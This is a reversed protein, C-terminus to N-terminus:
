LATLVCSQKLTMPSSPHTLPIVVTFFQYKSSFMRSMGGEIWGQQKSSDRLVDWKGYNDKQKRENVYKEEYDGKRFVSSM